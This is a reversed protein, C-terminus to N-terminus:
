IRLSQANTSTTRSNELNKPLQLFQSIRFQHEVTWTSGCFIEMPDSHNSDKHGNPGTLELLKTMTLNHMGNSFAQTPCTTGLKPKM